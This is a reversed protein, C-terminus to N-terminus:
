IYGNNFEFPSNKGNLTFSKNITDRNQIYIRINDSKKSLMKIEKLLQKYYTKSINFEFVSYNVRFGFSSLLKEIKARRKNSSIDYTILIFM